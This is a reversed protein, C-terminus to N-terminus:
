KDRDNWQISFRLVGQVNGGAAKVNQKVDSDTMNGTYAWSFNNNWKFMTKSDKVEPAILSVMNKAHRNEVYVELEKATPLVDAIFKDITVEEVRSFQKPNVKVDKELEAFLDGAEQVRSAADRNAFLINNITIDDLTAHRRKLSDMYGLEVIKEKAEELMRKTFIEKPRKYNAPAVIKEYRTVATDLDVGESIDTLLVGISHNRIRGIAMGAELSKEWTYLEKQRDTILADYENKYKLLQKLQAEWENGRYLSNSAILSLVDEISTKDIERLSREFVNRTDRYNGKQEAIHDQSTYAWRPVQVYFHEYVNVVGNIIEKSEPTGVHINRYLYIDKIAKTKVHAALVDAVPQYKDDGINVDWISHIVGDKIAVLGGIDRIFHRCCSCDFWQRKRYIPNTGEPYSSLYLDWLENYETEVVFFKPDRDDKIMDRMVALQDAVAKKFIRFDSM